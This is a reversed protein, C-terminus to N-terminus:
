TMVPCQASGGPSYLPDGRAKNRVPCHVHILGVRRNKEGEGGVPGCM